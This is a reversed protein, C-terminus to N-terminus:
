QEWSMEYILPASGLEDIVDTGGLGKKFAWLNTVNYFPIYAADQMVKMQIQDYIARRKEQDSEAEGQEFLKDVEPVSYHSFNWGGTINIRDKGTGFIKNLDAPDVGEWQTWVLNHKGAQADAQQAPNDESVIDAKFGVAQLQAQIVEALTNLTPFFLLVVALDKGDKQRVDGELKWGAEDLLSAAKDPDFSYLASDKDYAWAFTSIIGDAPEATGEFVVENIEDRNIAYEMAQRVKLDDTPFKEVNLFGGAPPYGELLVKSTTFANPDLSKWDAPALGSAADIQGSGLAALRTATEPIFNFRVEDLYARGEHKERGSPWDYHPFATVTVHDKPAWEKFMFPGSGVPHQGLDQGYKKIAAPSVMGMGYTSLGVPLPGYPRSMKVNVTYPDVVETGVYPGLEFIAYESKTAPDVMRDFNIKVADANFDTGDHFKVGKRLALTWTLGDPSVSWKTALGPYLTGDQAREVLRDFVAMMFIGDSVSSTVHPDLITFDSRVGITLNGGPKPTQAAALPARADLLAAVAPAALGLQASRVLLQRRSVRGRFFEGFLASVQFPTTSRM